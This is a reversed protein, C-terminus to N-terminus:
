KDKLIQNSIFMPTINKYEEQLEKSLYQFGSIIKRCKFSGCNCNMKWKDMSDTSSVSYDITLETGSKIQYMSYFIARKGVIHLFCNPDCSHNIFDDAQASPGIFWTNSVQIWAPHNPEPMTEEIHLDGTVEIIPANAPIDITSYVGNGNKFQKIKLYQKFM